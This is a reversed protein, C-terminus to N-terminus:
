GSSGTVAVRERPSTQGISPSASAGPVLIAVTMSSRPDSPASTPATPTAYPESRFAWMHASRLYNIHHSINTLTTSEPKRLTHMKRVAQGLRPLCDTRLIRV